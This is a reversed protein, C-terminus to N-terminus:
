FCVFLLILAIDLSWWQPRMFPLEEIFEIAEILRERIVDIKTSAVSNAQELKISWLPQNAGNTEKMGM